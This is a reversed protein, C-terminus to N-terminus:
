DRRQNNSRNKLLNIERETIYGNERVNEFIEETTKTKM